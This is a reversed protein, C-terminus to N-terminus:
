IKEEKNSRHQDLIRYYYSISEIFFHDHEPVRRLAMSKFNLPSSRLIYRTPGVISLMM